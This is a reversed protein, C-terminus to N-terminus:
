IDNEKGEVIKMAEKIEHLRDIYCPRHGNFIQSLIGRAANMEECVRYARGRKEACWKEIIAIEKQSAVEKVGETKEIKISSNNWGKNQEGSFGLPLKKVQNGSKIWEDVTKNM